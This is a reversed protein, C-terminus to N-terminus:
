FPVEEKIPKLPLNFIGRRVMSAIIGYNSLDTWTDDISENKAAKTQYTGDSVGYLNLLRAMKDNARVVVGIEGCNLINSHGYDRQKSIMVERLEALVSDVADEFFMAEPEM